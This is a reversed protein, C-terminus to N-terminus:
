STAYYRYLEWLPFSYQLWLIMGTFYLGQRALKIHPLHAPKEPLESSIFGQIFPLGRTCRGIWCPSAMGIPLLWM